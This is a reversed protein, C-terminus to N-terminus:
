KEEELKQAAEFAEKADEFAKLTAGADKAEVAPTNNVTDEPVEAVAEAILAAAKKWDDDAKTDKTDFADVADKALKAQEALLGLHTIPTLVGEVMVMEETSEALEKLQAIEADTRDIRKALEARSADADATASRLKALEAM